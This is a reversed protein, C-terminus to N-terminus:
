RAGERLIRNVLALRDRFALREVHPSCRESKKRSFSFWSRRGKAAKLLVRVEENEMRLFTLSLCVEKGGREERRKGKEKKRREKWRSTRRKRWRGKRPSFSFLNLLCPRNQVIRSNTTRRKAVLKNHAQSSPVGIMWSLRPRRLDKEMRWGVFAFASSSKEGNCERKKERKKLCFTNRGRKRQEKRIATRQNKRKRWRGQTREQEENRAM